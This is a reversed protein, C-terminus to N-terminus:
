GRARVHKGADVEVTYAELPIDIVEPEAEWRHAVIRAEPGIRGPLWPSPVTIRGESGFIRVSIDLNAQISCAVRALMGGEFTLKAATSRDVGTRGITSYRVRDLLPVLPEM